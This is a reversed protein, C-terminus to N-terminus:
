RRGYASTVGGRERSQPWRACALAAADGRDPSRGFRRRFEEKRELQRVDRKEDGDSRVVWRVKRACLDEELEPDEGVLALERVDEGVDLYACSAWDAGVESDYSTGWFHCEVVRGGAAFLDLIRAGRLADVLGGGYGGGADVRVEVERCGGRLLRSLEEVVVALYAGSDRDHVLARQELCGRWRVYVCGADEGGRACDVGISARTSDSRQFVESSDRAAAARYLAPSVAADAATTPPVEGVGAVGPLVHSGTSGPGGPSSSRLGIRTRVM